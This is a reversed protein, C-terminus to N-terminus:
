GPWPAAPLLPHLHGRSAQLIGAWCGQGRVVVSGWKSECTRRPALCGVHLLQAGGHHPAMHLLGVGQVGWRGPRPTLPWPDGKLTKELIRAAWGAPSRAGALGHGPSGLGARVNPSFWGSGTQTCLGSAERSRHLTPAGPLQADWDERARQEM